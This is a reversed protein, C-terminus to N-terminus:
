EKVLEGNFAKTLISNKLVTLEKIKREQFKRVALSLLEIEDLQEVIKLQTLINPLPFSLNGLKSANFGGQAAGSIGANITTWYDKSRFFHRLYEPVVYSRNADVRILYSAFVAIPPEKILYSKGTTAGTRAFVIDGDKILFKSLDASNEEIRPVLLWDVNDDQIDTIRLYQPGFFEASSKSTYGYGIDSCSSLKVPKDTIKEFISDVASSYLDFSYKVNAESATIAIDIKAFISDIKQIIKNQIVLSPFSIIQEKVQKDTVAPYSAGTQLKEMIEMFENRLLYYFIFKPLVKGNSRFVFYGTSCVEDNFESPVLAVRRLTPRITAFLVDDKKINKRARSPAELGLISQPETIKLLEKSVSSVDVYQFVRNPENAPNINETKVLVDSLSCTTWNM